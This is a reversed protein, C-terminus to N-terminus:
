NGICWLYHFGPQLGRTVAEIDILDIDLRPAMAARSYLGYEGSAGRRYTIVEVDDLGLEESLSDILEPMHSVEDILGADLAQQATYIRGDALAVIEDRSLNPRGEAVADIFQDHLEDIVRQVLAREEDTMARFPSLIDKHPGSTIASVQIGILDELGEVDMTILVVGISGTVTTPHAVIRDAAVAAYYGGSAATNMLMAVTPVETEEAYRQIEHHIIDSATVGGGPSDIRVILARIHDDERAEELADHLDEVLSTGEEFFGDSKETSIVGAIDVVLFRDRTWVSEAEQLTVARMEQRGLGPFGPIIVCGALFTLALLPLLSLSRRIM